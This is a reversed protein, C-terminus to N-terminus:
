NAVLHERDADQVIHGARVETRLERYFAEIELRSLRWLEDARMRGGARKIAATLEEHGMPPEDPKMSAEVVHETVAERRVRSEPVSFVERDARIAALLNRATGDGSAATPLRGEMAHRVARAALREAVLMSRAAEAALIDARDLLRRTKSVIIHQEKLPPLAIHFARLEPFYITTHTSGRGFRRIGKGEAMLAYMLYEPLLADSCTWTVFDQSTAMPKGLITVYGVSATRSMCVTGAPLLRASSGAIGDDTITQASRMITHGHHDRADPISLWDVQGGWYQAKSRSPTHGTEQRALRLLPIWRWGHPLGTDPNNVAIAAIGPTVNETAARGGRGQVPPPTRALLADVSEAPDYAARKEGTLRGTVAARLGSVKLAGAAELARGAERRATSARDIIQQLRRALEAQQHAPPLPLPASRLVSMNIRVRGVGKGNEEFYEALTESNLWFSILRANVRSSLRTRFCDAKVIAQGLHDPVLCTRGLPAGLAATVLDGPKAEHGRLSEFRDAAIYARDDDVFRNPAINNLRIV